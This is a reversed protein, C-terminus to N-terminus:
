NYFMIDEEVDVGCGSGEEEFTGLGAMM